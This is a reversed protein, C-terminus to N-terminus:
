NNRVFRLIFFFFHAKKFHIVLNIIETNNEYDLKVKSIFIKVNWVIFM